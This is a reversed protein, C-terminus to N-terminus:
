ASHARRPHPTNPLPAMLTLVAERPGELWQSFVGSGFVLMGTIGLEASCRQAVNVIHQVAAADAGATARSCYM